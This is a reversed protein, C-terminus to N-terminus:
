DGQRARFVKRDRKGSRLETEVVGEGEAIEKILSDLGRGRLFLRL